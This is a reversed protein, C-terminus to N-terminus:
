VTHCFKYRALIKSNFIHSNLFLVTKCNKMNPWEKQHKQLNGAASCALCHHNWLDTTNKYVKKEKYVEKQLPAGINKILNLDPLMPLWELNVIGKRELYEKTKVVMYPFANNHMWLFNEPLVEDVMNFFDNELLDIYADVIIKGKMCVLCLCSSKSIAGWVM